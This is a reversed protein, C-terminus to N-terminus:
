LRNHLESLEAILSKIRADFAKADGIGLAALLGAEFRACRGEDMASIKMGQAIQAFFRSALEKHAGLCGIEPSAALNLAIAGM